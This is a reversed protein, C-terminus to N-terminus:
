SRASKRWAKAFTIFAALAAPPQRRSPYYLLPGPFSPWWDELVPVLRGSGIAERVYGDFTMVFGLGEIAAQLLLASDTATLPGTPVIRVTRGAKEFEWPLVAGSPFSTWLCPMGLLDRPHKPKGTKKLLAPSALTAYRQEPGLPLAVMDQALHEEYRVGADFGAAVIDILSADVVIEMHIAPHQALFATVMPALVLHLAPAPMNIRLRGSPTANMTRVATVADFVERLSPAIKALLVEGAETPAVSRTTRNLLRVGLREELDRLRQSLSSVSVRQELAARRFSRLRAVAVFANLDRLDIDNM